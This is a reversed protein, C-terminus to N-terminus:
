EGTEKLNPASPLPRLRRSMDAAQKALISAMGCSVATSSIPKPEWRDLRRQQDRLAAAAEALIRDVERVLRSPEDAMTELREILAKIDTMPRSRQNEADAVVM